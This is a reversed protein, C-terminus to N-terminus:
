RRVFSDTKSLRGHTRGSDDVLPLWLRDSSDVYAQGFRVELGPLSRADLGRGREVSAEFAIVERTGVNLACEVRDGSGSRRTVNLVLAEDGLAGIWAGRLADAELPVFRYRELRPAAAAEVADRRPALSRADFLALATGSLLLALLFGVAGIPAHPVAADSESEPERAAGRARAQGLLESIPLLAACVLFLVGGLPAPPIGLAERAPALSMDAGAFLALSITAGLLAAALPHGSRGAGRPALRSAIAGFLSTSRRVALAVSGAILLSVAVAGLLAAAIGAAAQASM